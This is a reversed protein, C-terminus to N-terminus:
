NLVTVGRRNRAWAAENSGLVEPREKGYSTTAIRNPAVGLSALYEKVSNARREGLALNYERTGREDAHGEITATLGVNQRLFAAQRELTAVADGRISSSNYDFFVRDGVESIFRESLSVAAPAATGTTGSAGTTGSGSGGATGSTSGDSACAALLAAAAIMSLIKINMQNEEETSSV